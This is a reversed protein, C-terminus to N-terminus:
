YKCDGKSVTKVIESYKLEDDQDCQVHCSVSKIKKCTPLKTSSYIMKDNVRASDSCWYIFPLKTVERNDKSLFDVYCVGFAVPFSKLKATFKAWRPPVGKLATIEEETYEKASEDYGMKESVQVKNKDIVMIIWELKKKELEAFLPVCSSDCKIGSDVM